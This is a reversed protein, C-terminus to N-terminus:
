TNTYQVEVGWEKLKDLFKEKSVMYIADSNSAQENEHNHFEIWISSLPHVFLSYVGIDIGFPIKQPKISFILKEDAKKSIGSYGWTSRCNQYQIIKLDM